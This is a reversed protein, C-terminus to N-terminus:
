GTSPGQDTLLDPSFDKDRMRDKAYPDLDFYWATTLPTHMYLYGPPVGDTESSHNRESDDPPVPPTGPRPPAPRPPSAGTGKRRWRTQPNKATCHQCPLWGDIQNERVMAPHRAIAAKVKHHAPCVVGRMKEKWAKTCLKNILQHTQEIAARSNGEKAMKAMNLALCMDSQELQVRGGQRAMTASM